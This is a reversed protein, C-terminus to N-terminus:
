TLGNGGRTLELRLLLLCVMWQAYGPGPGGVSSFVLRGATFNIEHGIGHSREWSCQWQLDPFFASHCVGRWM